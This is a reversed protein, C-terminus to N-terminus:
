SKIQPLGSTRGTRSACSQANWSYREGRTAQHAWGRLVGHRLGIVAQCRGAPSARIRHPAHGLSATRWEKSGHAVGQPRDQMVQCAVLLAPDNCTRPPRSLNVQAHRDRRLVRTGRHKPIECAFTGTGTGALKGSPVAVKGTGGDPGTSVSHRRSAKLQCRHAGGTPLLFLGVTLPSNLGQM